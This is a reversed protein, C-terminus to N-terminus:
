GARDHESLAGRKDAAIKVAMDFLKCCETALEEPDGGTRQCHAVIILASCAFLANVVALDNKGMCENPIFDDLLKDVVKVTDRQLCYRLPNKAM